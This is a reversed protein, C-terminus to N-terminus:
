NQSTDKKRQKNKMLAKRRRSVKGGGKVDISFPQVNGLTSKIKANGRESNHKPRRRQGKYRAAGSQHVLTTSLVIKLIILSTYVCYTSVMGFCLSRTSTYLKPSSLVVM